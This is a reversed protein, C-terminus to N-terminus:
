RYKNLIREKEAQLAEIKDVEAKLRARAALVNERAIRAAEASEKANRASDERLRPEEARLRELSATWERYGEPGGHLKEIEAQTLPRPTFATVMAYAVYGALLLCTLSLARVTFKFM